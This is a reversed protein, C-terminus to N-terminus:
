SPPRIRITVSKVPVGANRAILRRSLVVVEDLKKTKANDLQVAQYAAVGERLYSATTGLVNALREMTARQPVTEGREYHSISVNSLEALDALQQQTLALHARLRRIREGCGPALARGM